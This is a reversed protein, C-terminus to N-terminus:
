TLCSSNAIILGPKWVRIHESSIFSQGLVSFTSVFNKTERLGQNSVQKLLHDDTVVIDSILLLFEPIHNTNRTKVSLFKVSSLRFVQSFDPMLSWLDTTAIFKPEIWIKPFWSFLIEVYSCIAIVFIRMSTWSMHFASCSDHVVTKDYVDWKWRLNTMFHDYSQKSQISVSLIGLDAMRLKLSAFTGQQMSHEGTTKEM